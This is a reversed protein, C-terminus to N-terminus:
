GGIYECEALELERERRAKAMAQADPGGAGVADQSARFETYAERTRASVDTEVYAPYTVPSVDYLQDIAIIERITVGTETDTYWRDESVTFAFSMQDIDGRDMSTMLDRAFQTDPPVIDVALGREDESLSLTNAKTRGLVYDPNHNWLARVDSRVLADTFAGHRIVERFGWIMQSLSDFVAAHGQIHRQGDGGETARLQIQYSRRDANNLQPM